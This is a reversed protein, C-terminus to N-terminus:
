PQQPQDGGKELSAKYASPTMGAIEKFLKIFHDISSYGLMDCIQYTKFNGTRLLDKAYEIKTMTSFRQFSIGTQQKFLKGFYDKSYGFSEAADEVTVSKGYNASFFVAINNIFKGSDASLGLESLIAHVAPVIKNKPSDQQIKERVRALVGGLKKSDVPKLIYDFAGLILGQRAYEFEDYSSAFVVNTNNGRARMERLLEIGDMFPMRVDTFVLEFSEKALMDLAQRGNSAQQAIEFGYEAWTKMKIYLYRMASDDEVLLVRYM